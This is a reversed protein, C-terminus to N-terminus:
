GCQETRLRRDHLGVIGFPHEVIGADIERDRGAAALRAEVMETDLDLTGFFEALDISPQALRTAFDDLLALGHAAVGPGLLKSRRDRQSQM